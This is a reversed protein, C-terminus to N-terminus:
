AARGERDMDAAVALSEGDPTGRLSKLVADGKAEADRLDRNHGLGGFVADLAVDPICAHVRQGGVSLYLDTEHHERCPVIEIITHVGDADRVQAVTADGRRDDLLLTRGAGDTRDQENTSM